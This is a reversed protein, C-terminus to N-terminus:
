TLSAGNRIAAGRDSMPRWRRKALDYRGGTAYPRPRAAPEAARHGFYFFLEGNFFHPEPLEPAWAAADVDDIPLPAIPTWQMTRLDLAAGTYADETKGSVVLWHDLFRATQPQLAPPAGKEPLPTWGSSTLTL